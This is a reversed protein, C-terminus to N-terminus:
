RAEQHARGAAICSLEVFECERLCRAIVVSHLTQAQDTLRKELASAGLESAILGGGREFRELGGGVDGALRALDFGQDRPGL